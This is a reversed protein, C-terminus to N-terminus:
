LSNKDEFDFVKKQSWQSLPGSHIFDRSKWLAESRGMRRLLFWRIQFHKWCIGRKKKKCETIKPRDGFLKQNKWDKKIHGGQGRWDESKKEWCFSRMVLNKKENKKKGFSSLLESLHLSFVCCCFSFFCTKKKFKPQLHPTDHVKEVTGETSAGPMKQSWCQNIQKHIM